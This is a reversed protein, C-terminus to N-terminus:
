QRSGIETEKKGKRTKGIIIRLTKLETLKTIPKNYNQVRTYVLRGMTKYMKVKDEFSLYRIRM